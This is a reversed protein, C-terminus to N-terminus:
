LRSRISRTSSRDLMRSRDPAGPWRGVRARSVLPLLMGFPEGGDYHHLRHREQLWRLYRGSPLRFPLRRHIVVEHVFLYAVGYVTVGAGAWTMVDLSSPGWAGAAFLAFGLMSFCVPFLDNREWRGGPPQHHSRHWGMGPGHMVWRHTAYSVAEMAVFSTAAVLAAIM